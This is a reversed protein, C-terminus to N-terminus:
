MAARTRADAEKILHRTQVDAGHLITGMAPEFAPEGCPNYGELGTRAGRHPETIMRKQMAGSGKM